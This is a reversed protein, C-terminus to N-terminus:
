RNGHRRADPWYRAFPPALPLLHRIAASALRLTRERGPTWRFGYAERLDAPLLGLTALRIFWAAPRTPDDLPPYLLDHAVSRAAATVELCGSDRVREIHREVSATDLPLRDAPIGLLAAAPASEACYADKEEASLPGVFREYALPMSELLTAHVWLLLDPNTASYPTGAPYGGAASDLQGNVRRHIANLHEAAGAVRDSSGFTFALMARITGHLRRLRTLRGAAFDSYKAVGAAVLPHALQLLIARGWGLVVVREGNIKRAVPM